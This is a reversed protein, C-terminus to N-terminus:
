FVKFTDLFSQNSFIKLYYEFLVVTRYFQLSFMALIIMKSFKNNYNKKFIQKTITIQIIRLM